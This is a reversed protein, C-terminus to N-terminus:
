KQPDRDIVFKTSNAQMKTLHNSTAIADCAINGYSTAIHITGNTAM